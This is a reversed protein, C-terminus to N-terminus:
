IFNIDTSFWEQVCNKKKEATFIKLNKYNHKAMTPGTRLQENSIVDRM